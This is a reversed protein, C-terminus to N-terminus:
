LHVAAAEDVIWYLSGGDPKVRGAPLDEKDKLIRKVMDAKGSGSIAYICNRANNLVPFTLTIRAPPPKPSDTISAVSVSAETLLPHGPFLSCTHGDPGMGLLLLDFKFEDGGFAKKLKEIYDKAAEEASVGQKITVFQSEKLSTKPILDRKYTGFTSDNSDEPVVREDCFALTWKSWDTDIKPLSECLYKVVSGGSLGIYFNGRNYIADNSIKQVYSTLKNIIEQEDSVKIITM